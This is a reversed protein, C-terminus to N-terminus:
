TGRENSISTVNLEDDYTFESSYGGMDTIMVLDGNTDYIFHASRGFPDNVREVLGDNNNDVLTTIRGIADTITELRSSGYGLILKQGYADTIEALYPTLLGTGDPIKYVYYAGNIFELRYHDDAIKELSNFVGPPKAYGGSNDNMFLDMRGDPMFVTVNGDADIDIYSRYNFIWKRGFPEDDSGTSQSNYSLQIRVPPGIPSEYWLPIDTMYLNMNVMNVKWVPAGEPCDKTNGEGAKKGPDGMNDEARPTAVSACGAGTTDDAGDGNADICVYTSDPDDFETYVGMNFANSAQDCSGSNNNMANLAIDSVCDPSISPDISYYDSSRHEIVVGSSNKYSAMCNYTGSNSGTSTYYWWQEADPFQGSFDSVDAYVPSCDYYGSTGDCGGVNDGEPYDAHGDYNQWDFNSNNCQSINRVSVLNEGNSSLECTETDYSMVRHYMHCYNGVVRYSYEHWGGNATLPLLLFIFIIIIIKTIKM